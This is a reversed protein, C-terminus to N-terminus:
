SLTSVTFPSGDSGVFAQFNLSPISWDQQKTDIKLDAAVVKPFTWLEQVGNYERAVDLSFTPQYGQLPNTGVTKYGTSALNYQYNIFVRLGSTHDASSFLYTAGSLSYQGASPTGTVYTLPNDNGDIVGKDAAFTGSNPPTVTVQFPTAPVVTGSTDIYDVVSGSSPTLGLVLPVFLLSNIQAFKMTGSIDTQGAGVALAYQSQGFLPKISRKIDFSVEQCAGFKVPTPNVLANGNIDTLPTAFLTGPGFALQRTSM